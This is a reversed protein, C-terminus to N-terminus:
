SIDDEGVIIRENEFKVAIGCETKWFCSFIIGYVMNESEGFSQPIYVMTPRVFKIFENFNNDISNITKMIDENSEQMISNINNKYFEFLKYECDKSISQINKDLYILIKKNKSQYIRM